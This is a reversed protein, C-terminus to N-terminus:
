MDMDQSVPSGGSENMEKAGNATKELAGKCMSASLFWPCCFYLPLCERKTQGNVVTDVTFPLGCQHEVVTDEGCQDKIMKEVEIRNNMVWGATPCTKLIVVNPSSPADSMIAIATSHTNTKDSCKLVWLM